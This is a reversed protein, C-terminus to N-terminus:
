EVVKPMDYAIFLQIGLEIDFDVIGELLLLPETLLNTTFGGHIAMEEDVTGYIYLHGNALLIYVTDNTYHVKVIRVDFKFHKDNVVYLDQDNVVYLYEYRTQVIRTVSSVNKISQLKSELLSLEFLNNDSTLIYINSNGYNYKCYFYKMTHNLNHYKFYIMQLNSMVDKSVVNKVIENKLKRLDTEIDRFTNLRIAGLKVDGTDIVFDQPYEGYVLSLGNSMSIFLTLKIARIDSVERLIKKFGLNSEVMYLNREFDLFFMNRGQFAVKSVNEAIKIMSEEKNFPQGTFYLVNDSTILAVGVSFFLASLSVFRVQSKIKQLAENRLPKVYKNYMYGYLSKLHEFYYNKPNEIRTIGFKAKIISQWLNKSESISSYCGSNVLSLNDIDVKGLRTLIQSLIIKPLNCIRSDM